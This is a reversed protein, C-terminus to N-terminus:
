TTYCQIQKTSVHKNIPGIIKHLAKLQSSFRVSKIPLYVIRLLASFTTRYKAANVTFTRRIVFKGMLIVRHLVNVIKGM